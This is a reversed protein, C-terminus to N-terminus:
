NFKIFKHVNKLVLGHHLAQKLNRIDRVYESKDHLNALIKEVKDIKIREQLFLLDSHLEHLKLLYQVDVELFYGEDSEENCNKIFDESFQSAHKIWEFSNVPLKQSMNM